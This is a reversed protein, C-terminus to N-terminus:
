LTEFAPACSTIAWMKRSEGTEEPKPVAIEILEGAKDGILPFKATALVRSSGSLIMGTLELKPKGNASLNM